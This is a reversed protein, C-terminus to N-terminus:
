FISLMHECGSNSSSISGSLLPSASSPAVSRSPSIQPLVAIGGFARFVCFMAASYRRLLVVLMRTPRYPRRRRDIRVDADTSVSMQTPRRPHEIVFMFM